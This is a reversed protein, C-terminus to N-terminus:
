KCASLGALHGSAFAWTLNYGGCIGDVDLIEGAFYLNNVLKSEMTDLDIEDLSVGGACVQANDFSNTDVPHFCFKKICRILSRYSKGYMDKCELSNIGAERCLADSLKKNFLGCLAENVSINDNVSFIMNLRCKLEDESIDPVFDILVYPKKGADITRKVHRSIQFVPIGSIGYDVLQLEGDAAFVLENDVYAMVKATCRVGHLSKCFGDSCKLQVLAPIVPIISHGFKGALEYGSGDSGTKPAAKGGTAIILKYAKLASKDCIEFYKENRTINHIEFETFVDIELRIMENRLANLVASAQEGAPYIYGNKEKTFLGLSEFFSIIDVPAFKEIVRFFDKDSSSNFFSGAMDLNTINCKGNGTSLIKKGVRDSHEIVCVKKGNRAATIAATMGAAGAGVIAIDYIM